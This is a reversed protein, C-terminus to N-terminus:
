AVRAWIYVVFYPNMINHDSHGAPQTFNPAPHTHTDSAAKVSATTGGKVFATTSADISGVAGGDHNHDHAAIKAGGTKGATDFDPDDPNQGILMRGKAVQLWTGFGLTTAPDAGDNLHYCGIPFKERIM